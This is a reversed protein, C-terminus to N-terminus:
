SHDFNCKTYEGLTFFDFYISVYIEEYMSSNDREDFNESIHRVWM